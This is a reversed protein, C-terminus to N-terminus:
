EFGEFAGIACVLFQYLVKKALVTNQFPEYIIRIKIIHVVFSPEKFFLVKQYVTM